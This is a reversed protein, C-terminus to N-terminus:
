IKILKYDKVLSRLSELAALLSIALAIITFTPMAELLAEAFIKWFPVIAGADTMILGAIDFFGSDALSRCASLFLPVASVASICFVVFYALLRRRIIRLKKEQEISLLIRDSLGEPAQIRGTDFNQRYKRKM